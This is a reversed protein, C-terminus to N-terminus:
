GITPTLSGGASRQADAGRGNAVADAVALGRLNCRVDSVPTKVVSLTRKEIPRFLMTECTRKDNYFRGNPSEMYLIFISEDANDFPKRELAHIKHINRVALQNQM